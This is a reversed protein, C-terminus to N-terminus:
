RLGRVFTRFSEGVAEPSVELGEVYITILNSDLLCLYGCFVRGKEGGYYYMGFTRGFQFPEPLDPTLFVDGRAEREAALRTRCILKFDDVSSVPRGVDLMTITSQQHGDGSRLVLKDETRKVEQWDTPAVITSNCLRFSTEAGDHNKGISAMLNSLMRNLM